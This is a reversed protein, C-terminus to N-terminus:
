ASSPMRSRDSHSSNLRTSKRDGEAFTPVPPLDKDDGKPAGGDAWKAITEIEKPSLSRDNAMKLSDTSAGWPPMEHAMVKNKIARAWPRANQYTILSMPAVEGPRHCVVCNNYLIPAVDKSFTPAADAARASSAVALCLAAIALTKQVM